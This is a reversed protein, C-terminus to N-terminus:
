DKDDASLIRLIRNFEKTIFERGQSGKWDIKTAPTGNDFGVRVDEM